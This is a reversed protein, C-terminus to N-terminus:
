KSLENEFRILQHNDVTTASAAMRVADSIIQRHILEESRTGVGVELGQGTIHNPPLPNRYYELKVNFLAFSDIQFKIHNAQLFVSPSFRRTKRFPNAKIKTKAENTILRPSVYRLTDAFSVYRSYTRTFASASAQQSPSDNYTITLSMMGLAAGGEQVFIFSGPRYIDNWQEWYVEVGSKRGYRIVLPILYWWLDKDIGQPYYDSLRFLLVPDSDTVMEIKFDAFKAAVSEPSFNNNFKFVAYKVEQSTLSYTNACVSDVQVEENIGTLYNSPVVAFGEDGSVSIPLIAKAILSQIAEADIRVEEYDSERNRLIHTKIYQLQATHLFWDKKYPSIYDGVYSGLQALLLDFEIHAEVINM